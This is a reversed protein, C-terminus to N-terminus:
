RPATQMKEYQMVAAIARRDGKEAMTYIETMVAAISDQLAMRQQPTMVPTARLKQLRVVADELKGARYDALAQQVQTSPPGSPPAASEAPPATQVITVPQSATEPAPQAPETKAIENAAKELESVANQKHGCGIFVAAIVTLFAVKTHDRNMTDSSIFNLTRQPDCPQVM